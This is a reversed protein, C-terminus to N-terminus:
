PNVLLHHIHSYQVLWTGGFQGNKEFLTLEWSGEELMKEMKYATCLGTAGAGICAVRMKSPQSHYQDLVKYPTPPYEFPALKATAKAVGNTENASPAM